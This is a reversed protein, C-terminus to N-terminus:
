EADPMEPEVPIEEPVLPEDTPVLFTEGELRICAWGTLGAVTRVRAWDGSVELVEVVEGASLLGIKVGTATSPADRLRLADAAVKMREPPTEEVVEVEDVHAVAGATVNGPDVGLAFFADEITRRLLNVNRENFSLDKRSAYYPEFTEKFAALLVPASAPDGMLGLGEAAAVNVLLNIDGLAAEVLERDGPEGRRALYWVVLRRAEPEPHALLGEVTEGGLRDFLDGLAGMAEDDLGIDHGALFTFLLPLGEEDTLRCYALFSEGRVTKSPDTAMARGVAALAEPSGLVGLARAAAARTQWDLGRELLEMLPYVLSPDGADVAAEAAATLRTPVAAPDELVEAFVPAARRDGIRGLARLAASSTEVTGPKTERAYTSLLLVAGSYGLRGLTEIVVLCKALPPEVGLYELLAVGTGDDGKAAYLDGLASLADAYEVRKLMAVPPELRSADDVAAILAATAADYVPGDFAGSYVEQLAQLADDSRRREGVAEAAVAMRGLLGCAATLREGPPPPDRRIFDGLMGIGAPDPHFTLAALVGAEDGTPDHELLWEAMEVADDDALRALSELVDLRDENTAEDSWFADRLLRRSEDADMYGLGGIAARFLAPDELAESLVPLSEPVGTFGLVSLLAGKVGPDSENRYVEYVRGYYDYRGRVAEIGLLAEAAATRVQPYPDDELLHVARDALAPLAGGTNRWSSLALERLRYDDSRWTDVLCGIADAPGEGTYRGLAEVIRRRVEYDKEEAANNAFFAVCRDDDLLGLLTVAMRRLAVDPDSAEAAVAAYLGSPTVTGTTRGELKAQIQALLELREPVSQAWGLEQALYALEEGSSSEVAEALVTTALILLLIVGRRM